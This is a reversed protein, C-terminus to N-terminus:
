VRSYINQGLDEEVKAMHQYQEFKEEELAQKDAAEESRNIEKSIVEETRNAEKAEALAQEDASKIARTEAEQEKIIVERERLDLEKQAMTSAVNQLMANQQTMQAFQTQLETLQAMQAQMMEMMQDKQAIEETTAIYSDVDAIGQLEYTKTILARLKVPDAMKNVEPNVSTTLTTFLTNYQMAKELKAQAGLPGVPRVSAESPWEASPNINITEDDMLLEWEGFENQLIKYVIKWLPKIVIESFNQVAHKQLQQTANLVMQASVTSAGSKLVDSMLNQGTLSIGTSTEREVDLMNILDFSSQGLSNLQIPNIAGPQKVAIGAGAKQNFIDKVNVLADPQYTFRPQNVLANHEFVQRQLGSKATQINRTLDVAGKGWFSYPEPNASGGSYPVYDVEDVDLIGGETYFIRYLRAVAFEEENVREVISSRLYLEYLEVEEQSKDISNFDRQYGNRTTSVINSRSDGDQSNEYAERIKDEDFGMTMLDSITVMAKHGVIRADDVSTADRNIIFNEARVNEIKITAREWSKKFYGSLMTQEHEISDVGLGALMGTPEQAEIQVAVTKTETIVTEVEYKMQTEISMLRMALEEETIENFFEKDVKRETTKRARLASVGSILSDKFFTQFIHYRNNETDFVDSIVRNIVKLTGPHKVGRPLIEMIDEGTFADMCVATFHDVTSQCVPAVIGAEGKRRAPLEKRYFQWNEAANSRYGDLHEEADSIEQAIQQSLEELKNENIDM